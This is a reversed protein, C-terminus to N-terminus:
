LKCQLPAPEPFYNCCDPGQKVISPPFGLARNIRIAQRLRGPAIPSKSLSVTIGSPIDLIVRFDPRVFLFAGPRDNTTFFKGEIIQKLEEVAPSGDPGRLNRTIKYLHKTETLNTVFQYDFTECDGGTEGDTDAETLVYWRGDLDPIAASCASVLVVFAVVFAVRIAM